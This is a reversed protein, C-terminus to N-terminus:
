VAGGAFPDEGLLEEPIVAVKMDEEAGTPIFTPFPPPSAPNFQKKIADRIFVFNGAHGSVPGMIFVLNRVPDVKYVQLNLITRRDVGMHGAMKKNKFVRGPDQRQGTAGHSRHSVSVGHSAPQGRFGWRKMAGQFGKGVTIGTVDVFQGPVFHKANIEWGVPLVANTSCRFQAVKEKPPVRAKHFHVLLPKPVNKPRIDSCGLEMGIYGEKNPQDTRVKVVQCKDLQVVTVVFQVGLSNWLQMMGMKRGIAGTRKSEPTWQAVPLQLESNSVLKQGWVQGPDM